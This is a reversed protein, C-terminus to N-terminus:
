KGRGNGNGRGSNNSNGDDDATSGGSSAPDSPDSADLVYKGGSIGVHDIKSARLTAACSLSVSTDGQGHTSEIKVLKTMPANPWVEFELDSVDSALVRTTFGPMRSLMVKTTSPERAAVSLSVEPNLAVQVEYSLEDSLVIKLEEICDARKDYRLLCMEDRNILGDLNADDTWLVLADDSASTVLKAKRIKATIRSMVVRAAHMSETHAQGREYASALAMSVGAAALGTVATISLALVCEMLTFAHKRQKAYM